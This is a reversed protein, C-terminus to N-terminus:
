QVFFALLVLTIEVQDYISLSYKGSHLKREKARSNLFLSQKLDREWDGHWRTQEVM